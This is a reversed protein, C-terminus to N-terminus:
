RIRDWLCWSLMEVVFSPFSVVIYLLAAVFAPKFSKDLLGDWGPVDAFNDLWQDFFGGATRGEQFMADPTIKRMWIALTKLLAFDAASLGLIAAAIDADTSDATINKHLVVFLALAAAGSCWWSCWWSVMSYALGTIGDRRWLGHQEAFEDYVKRGEDTGPGRRNIDPLPTHKFKAVRKKSTSM